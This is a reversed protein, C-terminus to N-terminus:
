VTKVSDITIILITAGIKKKSNKQAHLDIWKKKVM